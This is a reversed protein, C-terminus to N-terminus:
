KSVSITCLNQQKWKEIVNNGPEATQAHKLPNLGATIAVGEKDAINEDNSIRKM